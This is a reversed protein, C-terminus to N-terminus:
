RSHVLGVIPRFNLGDRSREPRLRAAHADVIKENLTLRQSRGMQVQSPV